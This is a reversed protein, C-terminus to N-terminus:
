PGPYIMYNSCVISDFTGSFNRYLRFMGMQGGFNYVSPSYGGILFYTPNYTNTSIQTIFDSSSQITIGNTSWYLTRIIGNNGNTVVVSYFTWNSISNQTFSSDSLINTLGGYNYNQYELYNVTILSYYDFHGGSATSYLSVLSESNGGVISKTMREWGIFAFPIVSNSLANFKFLSDPYTILVQNIGDLTGVPTAVNLSNTYPYSTVPGSVVSPQNSIVYHNGSIDKVNGDSNTSWDIAFLLSSQNPDTWYTSTSTSTTTTTTTTSTSTTTTPVFNRCVQNSLVVPFIYSCLDNTTLGETSQVRYWWQTLNRGLVEVTRIDECESALCMVPLSDVPILWNTDIIAYNTYNDGIVTGGICNTVNAGSVSFSSITRVRGSGTIIINSGQIINTLAELYVVDNSKVYFNSVASWVPDLEFKVYTNTGLWNTFIPDVEVKVYTNNNLWDEFVPDLEFKVYTNYGLWANFVPDVEPSNVILLNTQIIGGPGVSYTYFHIEDSYVPYPKSTAYVYNSLLVFMLFIVIKKM